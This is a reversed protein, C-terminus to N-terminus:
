ALLQQRLRNIKTRLSGDLVTDAAKIIVGGIVAPDVKSSLIVKKAGVRKAYVTEIQSKQEATLAVATTVEAYVTDHADDYLKQFADIIDVLNEMRGYDYAMQILNKIYPSAQKLLPQLLAEREAVQLSADSLMTSLQPNDQFIRRLEELETYGSELQDKESLLEFLAKSYRKAVTARNLSM